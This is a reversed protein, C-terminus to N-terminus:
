RTEGYLMRFQAFFVEHDTAYQREWSGQPLVARSLRACFRKLQDRIAFLAPIAETFGDVPAADQDDTRRFGQRAIRRCANRSDSLFSALEPCQGPLDAIQSMFGGGASSSLEVVNESDIQRDAFLPALPTLDMDPRLGLLVTVAQRHRASALIHFTALLVRDVHDDMGCMRQSNEDYANNNGAGDKVSVSSFTEGRRLSQTIRAQVAGFVQARMVSLPMALAADGGEVVLELAATERKNFFRIADAPPTQLVDFPMRRADIQAVAANVDSPDVEGAARDSGLSLPTLLAARDRGAALSVRLRVFAGFVTVFKRFDAGADAKPSADLWFDLVAGDDLDEPGFHRDGHRRRLFSMLHRYKRQAHATPLHSNLFDYIERTTANAAQSVSARTAPSGAPDRFTRDLQEYGLATVLFEILASLYPMRAFSVSFEGDPYSMGAETASLTLKACAATRGAAANRLRRRFEAATAPGGDWFLAEFGAAGFATEAIRVLHHLEHVAGAYTRCVIERALRRCVAPSYKAGDGVTAHSVTEFIARLDESVEEHGFREATMIGDM